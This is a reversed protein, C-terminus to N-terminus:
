LAAGGAVAWGVWGLPNWTNVAAGYGVNVAFGAAAGAAGYYAGAAGGESNAGAVALGISVQEHSRDLTSLNKNSVGQMFALTIVVAGFAMLISKKKTKM